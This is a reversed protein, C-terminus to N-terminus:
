KGSLYPDGEYQGADVSILYADGGQLGTIAGEEDVHFSGEGTGKLRYCEVNNFTLPIGPECLTPKESASLFWACGGDAASSWVSGSGNEDITLATREDLAVVRPAAPNEPFQDKVLRALMTLSRGMRDREHFHSDTIIHHMRPMALFDTGITMREHYPNSLAEDSTIGGNEASYFLGGLSHCGASLGGIPVKKEDALYQLADEVKTGNWCRYYEWQDGGALFVGEAHGIVEEVYPSNAKERSDIVLTRISDVGGLENYIYDNYGDSDDTRLVVFDGGGSREIMWKMAEDVEASGGMLCIGSHTESTVDGENGTIYTKVGDVVKETVQAKSPVPAHCLRAKGASLASNQVSSADNLRMRNVQM